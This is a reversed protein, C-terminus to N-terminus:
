FKEKFYKIANNLVENGITALLSTVFVLVLIIIVAVVNM